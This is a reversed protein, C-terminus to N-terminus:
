TISTVQHAPAAVPPPQTVRAQLQPLLMGLEVETRALEAEYFSSVREMQALVAEFFPSLGDALETDALLRELLPSSPGGSVKARRKSRPTGAPTALPTVKSDAYERKILKKLMRYDIYYEAWVALKSYELQSARPVRRELRALLNM